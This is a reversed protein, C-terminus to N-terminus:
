NESLLHIENQNNIYNSLTGFSFRGFNYPTIVKCNFRLFKERTGSLTTTELVLYIGSRYGFGLYRETFRFYILDGIKVRHIDAESKLKTIKM